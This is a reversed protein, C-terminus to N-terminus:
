FSQGSSSIPGLDKDMALILTPMLCNRGIIGKGSQLLIPTGLASTLEGLKQPDSLLIQLERIINHDSACLFERAAKSFSM